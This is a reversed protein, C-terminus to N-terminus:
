QVFADIPDYESIKYGNEAFDILYYHFKDQNNLKGDKNIDELTRFYLKSDNKLTRHDYFEHLEKSIKKFEAGDINSLYLSELDQRNIKGDGNTDRDYLFYMLYQQKSNNYIGRLFLVRNITMRHNTLPTRNGNKDEFVLNIFQGTLNDKNFYSSSIDSSSYSGSGLKSYGGREQLDVLGVAYILVETSDFRVPLESVLIKTTDKVINIITAVTDIQNEYDIKPTRESCSFTLVAFFAILLYRNM